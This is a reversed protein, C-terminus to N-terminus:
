PVTLILKLPLSPPGHGDDDGGRAAPIEAVDPLALPLGLAALARVAPVVEARGLGPLGGPPPEALAGLREPEGGALPHLTLRALRHVPLDVRVGPCLQAPCRASVGLEGVVQRPQCRGLRVRRALPQGLELPRRRLGSPLRGGVGVHRGAEALRYRDQVGRDPDVRGLGPSGAVLGGGSVPLRTLSLEGADQLRGVPGPQLVELPPCCGCTTRSSVRGALRSPLPSIAMRSRTLFARRIRGSRMMRPSIRPASASSMSCAIFVPWSPESEVMWALRGRSARVRRSFMTPMPPTLRDGRAVRWCIAAATWRIMWILRMRSPMRRTTATVSITPMSPSTM